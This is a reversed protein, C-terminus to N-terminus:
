KELDVKLWAKAYNMMRCGTASSVDLAAAAEDNSMGSFYRLEVLNAHDPKIIALRTLAEDLSLLEADPLPAALDHMEVRYNEGGRKFALKARARDVLIQRMATAAARIFHTKDNWDVSADALKLWAEHVLGTAELTQGPQECALKSAALKRLERYVLPFIEDPTLRQDGAFLRNELGESIRRLSACTRRLM